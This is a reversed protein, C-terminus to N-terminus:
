PLDTGAEGIKDHMVDNLSCEIDSKLCSLRDTAPNVTRTVPAALPMPRAVARTNAASPALTATVSKTAPPASATAASITLFPPAALGPGEVDGVAIVDVGDDVLDGRM